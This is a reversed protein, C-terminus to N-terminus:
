RGTKREKTAATLTRSEKRRPCLGPLSRYKLLGPLMAESSFPARCQRPKNNASPLTGRAAVIVSRSLRDQVPGTRRRRRLFWRFVCFVLGQSDFYLSVTEPNQITRSVDLLARLTNADVRGLRAKECEHMEFSMTYKRSDMRQVQM